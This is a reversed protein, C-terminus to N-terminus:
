NDMTETAGGIAIFIICTVILLTGIGDFITIKQGHKFYFIVITFIMSTAFLIAIIGANVGSEGAFTFTGFVGLFILGQTFFRIFILFIRICSLKM